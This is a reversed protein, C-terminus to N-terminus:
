ERSASTARLRRVASRAAEPLGVVVIRDWRSRGMFIYARDDRGPPVYAALRTPRARARLRVLLVTEPKALRVRLLTGRRGLAAVEADSIPRTVDHRAGALMGHTLTRGLAIQEGTLEVPVREGRDVLTLGAIQADLASPTVAVFALCLLLISRHANM